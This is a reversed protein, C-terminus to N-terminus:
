YNMGEALNILIGYPDRAKVVHSALLVGSAGLTKAVHADNRDKVGAGCLVPIDAVSKVKKVTNSILGPKSASVSVEGGILEPPEVAIYDPSFRAVKEAMEADKTCVLSILGNAKAIEVAKKIDKLVFRDESHNIICGKAGNEKICQALTHGTNPGFEVPDLHQSFVPIKVTRSVRYIDAEQVAVIIKLGSKRAAKECAFALKEANAGTSEMYTKFNVVIIGPTAM